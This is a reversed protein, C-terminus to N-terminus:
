QKRLWPFFPNTTRQYERYEEGYKRVSHNETLPVGSVKLLLYLMGLPVYITLLAGPSGLAFIFFGVWVVWEFFYNPHRSYHWFGEQCVKGQNLPDLKFQTLQWDTLAEGAFGVLWIFFGLFEWGSLDTSPNIAAVIFPTSFLLVLAGQILFVKLVHLDQSPTQWWSKALEIYRPDEQKSLIFRRLLHWALRLGWALVMLTILWRRLWYGNGMAFYVISCFVFGLAWGIDVISMIKQMLYILWLVIMMGIVLVCSAGMMQMVHLITERM